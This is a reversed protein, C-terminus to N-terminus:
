ATAGSVARYDSAVEGDLCERVRSHARGDPNRVIVQPRSAGRQAGARLLTRIEVDDEPMSYGVLELRGPGSVARYADRWIQHLPAVDGTKGRAMTVMYLETACQRLINNWGMPEELARIRMPLDARADPPPLRRRRSGPGFLRESLVSFQEDPRSRRAHRGLCWDVSGHLKLLVITDDRGAGSLRLPRGHLQAYRELLLDWNSTIVVNGPQLLEDLYDHGAALTADCRRGAELLLQAMAFKLARHLAAADRFGGPLDAGLHLYARLMSFFDVPDPAYGEHDGAPYFFRFASALRAVLAERHRRHRATLDLVERLLMTTTPFGLACSLGAGVVYVNRTRTPASAM